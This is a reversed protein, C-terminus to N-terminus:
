SVSSRRQADRGAGEQLGGELLEGAVPPIQLALLVLKEGRLNDEVFDGGSFARHGLAAEFEHSVGRQQIQSILGIRQGLLNKARPQQRGRRVAVRGVDREGANVFHIHQQCPIAPVDGVGGDDPPQAFEDRLLAIGKRLNVRRIFQHSDGILLVVPM